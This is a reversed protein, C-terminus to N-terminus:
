MTEVMANRIHCESWKRIATTLYIGLHHTSKKCYQGQDHLAPAYSGCKYSVRPQCVETSAMTGELLWAIAQTSCHFMLDIWASQGLLTLSTKDKSLQNKHSFNAAPLQLGTWTTYECTAVNGLIDLLSPGKVRFSLGVRLWTASLFSLCGSRCCRPFSLGATEAFLSSLSPRAQSGFPSGRGVVTPMDLLYARGQECSGVNRSKWGKGKLEERATM